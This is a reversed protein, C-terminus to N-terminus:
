PTEESRRSKRAWLWNVLAVLFTVAVIAAEARGMRTMLGVCVSLGLLALIDGAPLRFQAPESRRRRLVILALCASGYIFLRTVASLLANWRFDAIVALLWVLAGFALISFYPTRFQPHLWSFAPPFDRREGLAFTLRPANLMNASLYGYVSVLAGLAMLVGGGAGLFVRAADALPRASAAPNPLVKLVILQVAAYIIFVAVMATFLAFPADKRPNKAEGLPMMAADYGGYAFVLLLVAEVWQGSTASTALAPTAPHRLLVFAAGAVLFVGIPLLKAITFFDSVNAGSRVGRYNVAALFGLLLALVAARLLPQQVAPWFEALYIVFLNAAAAAATIRVLWAMWGIQIGAFRGLGERAYLYAGGAATFRSALEAFCAMIVGNGVAALAYALVSQSGVLGAILSPLGFIASGIVSNIVLAALSWRGIARVLEPQSLSSM